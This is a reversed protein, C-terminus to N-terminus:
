RYLTFQYGLNVMWDQELQPGNLNQYLPLLYELALRHGGSGAINVGAGLDLRKGARLHPDATAVMMPDLAPDAGRIDGWQRYQLRASVSVHPSLARALWTSVQAENGLHYDNSNWGSRVSAALQSGWSWRLFFRNYTAALRVDWTGSGLQMPYPLRVDGMPTLGHENIGGTPASLGITLHANADPRQFLRYLGDLKVDGMGSTQTTFLAGMRTAHDMSRDLYPLMLMLTWRDAPAYMAGLMHMDTTMSVPAVMYSELVEDISVRHTNSRNGSMEMRMFRYSFMWEGQNHTHDGAVGIPAHSDARLSETDARLGPTAM